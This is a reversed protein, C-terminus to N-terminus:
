ERPTPTEIMQQLARLANLAEPSVRAPFRQGLSVATALQRRIAPMARFHQIVAARVSPDTIDNVYRLAQVAVDPDSPVAAYLATLREIHPGAVTTVAAQATPGTLERRLLAMRAESEKERIGLEPAQGMALPAGPVGVGARPTRMFEPMEMTVQPQQAMPFAQQPTIRPPQVMGYGPVEYGRTPRAPPPTPAAAPTPPPMAAAPPQTPPIPHMQEYGPLQSVPAGPEMRGGQWLGEAPGGPTPAAPTGLDPRAWGFYPLTAAGIGRQVVGALGPAAGGAAGPYPAAAAPAGAQPAAVGAGATGAVRGLGEIAEPGRQIMPTAATGYLAAREAPGLVGAGEPGLLGAARARGAEAQQGWEGMRARVVAAQGGAPVEGFRPGPAIGAAAAFPAQREEIGGIQRAGEGYGPITRRALQEGPSVLAARGAGVRAQAAEAERAESEGMQRVTSMLMKGQGIMRVTREEQTDFAKNYPLGTVGFKQGIAIMEPGGMMDLPMKKIGTRLEAAKAQQYRQEGRRGLFQAYRGRQIRQEPTVAPRAAQGRIQAAQREYVGGPRELGPRGIGARPVRTPRPAFGPMRLLKSVQEPTIGGKRKAAETVYGRVAGLRAQEGVFGRRREGAEEERGRRWREMQRTRLESKERARRAKASEEALFRRGGVQTRPPAAGRRGRGGYLRRGGFLPRRTTGDPM